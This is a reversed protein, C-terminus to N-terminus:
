LIMLKKGKLVVHVTHQTFIKEPVEFYKCIGVKIIEDIQNVGNVYNNLRQKSIGLEKALQSQSIGKLQCLLNIREVRM